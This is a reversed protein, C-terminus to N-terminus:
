LTPMGGHAYTKELQSQCSFCRTATPYALLREFPIESGCRACAGYSGDRMRARASEIDRIEQVDRDIMALNLDALADAVSEDGTDPPTRGLLEAYQQNETKELAARVEELLVDYRAALAKELRALQTKSLGNM